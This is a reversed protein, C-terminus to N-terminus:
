GVTNLIPNCISPVGAVAVASVYQDTRACPSTVLKVVPGATVDEAKAANPVHAATATPATWILKVATVPAEPIRIPMVRELAFM